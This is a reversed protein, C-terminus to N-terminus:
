YMSESDASGTLTESQYFIALSQPAVPSWNYDADLGYKRGSHSHKFASQSWSLFDNTM